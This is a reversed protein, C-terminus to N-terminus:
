EDINGRYEVSKIGPFGYERRNRGLFRRARALALDINPREYPPQPAEIILCTEKMRLVKDNISRAYDRHRSLVDWLHRTRKPPKRKKAM